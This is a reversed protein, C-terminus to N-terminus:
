FCGIIFTYERISVSAASAAQTDLEQPIRKITIITKKKKHKKLLSQILRYVKAPIKKDSM